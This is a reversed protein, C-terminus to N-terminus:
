AKGVHGSDFKSSGQLLFSVSESKKWGLFTTKMSKKNHCLWQTPLSAAMYLSWRGVLCHSMM